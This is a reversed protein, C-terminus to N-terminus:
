LQLQNALEQTIFSRQAGEDFLIHGEVTSQGASVNAIVTKLLYVSTAIASLSTTLTQDNQTTTSVTQPTTSNTWTETHSTAVTATTQTQPQSEMTTTFAHCISTHHKKHCDRCSFRSSCQSVKYRGFCNFCLRANRILTLREKPCSVTTCFNPKHPGKCFVCIPERKSKDYTSGKNANVVFTSTTSMPSSRQGSHQSVEFIRM